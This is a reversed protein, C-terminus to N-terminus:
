RRTVVGRQGPVRGPAPRMHSWGVWGREALLERLRRAFPVSEMFVGDLLDRLPGPMGPEDFVAPQRALVDDMLDAMRDALARVADDDPDGAELLAALERYFRVNEPWDLQQQKDLMYDPMQEPLQAAVLIWADREGQVIPEPLGLSRLRDLYAVAEPPLALSDGAGLEAIRRRHEQRERIEERLRRDVERLGQAFGDPEADLLERVRSLPVGAEALVRVRVLEVAAAAGYRRYGAHDREPEALVGVAHYHRVTRPSVGAYAALEGITLM